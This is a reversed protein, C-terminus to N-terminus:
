SFVKQPQQHDLIDRVEHPDVGALTAPQWTPNRDKDIVQARVGERLDPHAAINLAARYDRELVDTLTMTPASRIMEFTVALSRPSRTELLDATQTAKEDGHARLAAIIALVSDQAFCTAIWQEDAALANDPAEPAFQAAFDAVVAPAEAPAERLQAHLADLQAHAVFHDALGYALAEGAGVPLGTLGLYMGIHSPMATLLSTVGVDPFLGIGTEPMGIKTTETVVRVSGHASVGVGGGMTIGDMFAVYPKPYSAIHHNMAYETAFFRASGDDKNVVSTYVQKIDGGACLGREGAGTILVAQVSDDTEWANLAADILEIMDTSLANIARPKNLRIHGLAGTQETIVTADNDTM